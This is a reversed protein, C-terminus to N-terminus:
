RRFRPLKNRTKVKRVKATTSLVEGTSNDYVMTESHVETNGINGTILKWVELGLEVSLLVATLSIWWEFLSVAYTQPVFLWVFSLGSDFYSWITALVSDVWSPLAPFVVSFLSQFIGVLAAFLAYFIM